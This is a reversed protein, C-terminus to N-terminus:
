IQVIDRSLDRGLDRHLGRYCGLNASYGEITGGGFGIYDEIIGGWVLNLGYSM